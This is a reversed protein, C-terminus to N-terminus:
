GVGDLERKGRGEGRVWVVVLHHDSDVREGVEVWEVKDRTDENGIVYDIVTNGRGRTFTWEREDDGEM